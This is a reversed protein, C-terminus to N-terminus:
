NIKQKKEQNKKKPHKPIYNTYTAAGSKIPQVIITVNASGLGLCKFHKRKM